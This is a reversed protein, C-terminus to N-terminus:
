RTAARMGAARSNTYLNPRILTAAAKLELAIMRSGTATTWSASATQEGAQRWQSELATAPTAETDDALETWNTRPTVAEAVGPTVSATTSNGATIAAGLTATVSNAAAGVAVISQVIAASGNTGGTDADTFEDVIWQCSNPSAVTITMAGTTPSVAVARFVFVNRLTEVSNAVATWTLGNGSLTPVPPTGSGITSVIHAIYLRAATPTWSATAYSTATTTSSGVLRNAATIPM